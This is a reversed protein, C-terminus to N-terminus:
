PVPRAIGQVHVQRAGTADITATSTIDFHDCHNGGPGMSMGRCNGQAKYVVMANVSLTAGGLHGYPDMNYTKVTSTDGIGAVAAAYLPDNAQDYFPYESAVGNGADGAFIVKGIASEAAEFAITSHQFNQSMREELSTNSLGSIGIIALVVLLMLSVILAVGQQQRFSFQQISKGAM